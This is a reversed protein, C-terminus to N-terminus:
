KEINFHYEYKNIWNCELNSCLWERSTKGDPNLISKIKNILYSSNTVFGIWAEDYGELKVKDGIKLKKNM